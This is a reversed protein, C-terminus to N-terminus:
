NQMIPFLDNTYTLLIRGYKQGNLFKSSVNAAGINGPCTVNMLTMACESSDQMVNSNLMDIQSNDKEFDQFKQDGSDFFKIFDVPFITIVSTLIFVLTFLSNFYINSVFFYMYFFMLTWKGGNGIEGEVSSIHFAPSFITELMRDGTGNDRGQFIVLWQQMCVQAILCFCIKWCDVNDNQLVM